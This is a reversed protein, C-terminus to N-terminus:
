HMLQAMPRPRKPTYTSKIMTSGRLLVSYLIQIYQYPQGENCDHWHLMPVRSTCKTATALLGAKNCYQIKQLGDTVRVVRKSTSCPQAVGTVTSYYATVMIATQKQLSVLHLHNFRLTTYCPPALIAAAQAGLPSTNSSCQCPPFGADVEILSLSSSRAWDACGVANLGLKTKVPGSEMGRRTM